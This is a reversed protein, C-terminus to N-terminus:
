NFLDETRTNQVHLVPQTEQAALAAAYSEPSVVVDCSPTFITLTFTHNVLDPPHVASVAAEAAFTLSAASFVCFFLFLFCRRFNFTHRSIFDSGPKEPQSIIKM